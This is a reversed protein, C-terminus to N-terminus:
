SWAYECTSDASHQQAHHLAALLNRTLGPRCGAAPRVKFSYDPMERMTQLLLGRKSKLEAKVAAVEATHLIRVLRRDALATAEDMATWGRASRVSGQFGLALLREVLAHRRRMVAM